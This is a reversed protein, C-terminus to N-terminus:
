QNTGAVGSRTTPRKRVPSPIALRYGRVRDNAIPVAAPTLAVALARAVSAEAVAIPTAGSTSPQSASWMLM